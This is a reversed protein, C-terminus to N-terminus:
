RRAGAVVDSRTVDDAIAEIGRRSTTVLKRRAQPDRTYLTSVKHALQTSGLVVILDAWAINGQADARSSNRTGDVLRLELEGGVLEDLEGRVNPSGGVVLLRAIGANRCASTMERVARANNSGGCRSCVAAPVTVVARDDDAARAACNHCLRQWHRDVVERVLPAKSTAIRQKRPNTLGEAELIRRAETAPADTLGLGALLEDIPIDAANSTM